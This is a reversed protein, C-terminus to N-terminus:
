EMNGPVEIKAEPVRHASGVSKDQEFNTPSMSSNGLKAPTRVGFFSKVASRAGDQQPTTPQQHVSGFGPDLAPMSGISTRQVSLFM